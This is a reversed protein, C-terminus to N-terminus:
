YGHLVSNEVVDQAALAAVDIMGSIAAPRGLEADRRRREPLPASQPAGGRGPLDGLQGGFLGAGDITLAINHRRAELSNGM